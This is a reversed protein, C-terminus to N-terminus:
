GDDEEDHGLRTPAPEAARRTPAPEHDTIASDPPASASDPEAAESGTTAGPRDSAASKELVDRASPRASGASPRASGGPARASGASARASGGPARASGASARGTAGDGSLELLDRIRPRDTRHPPVQHAALSDALLRDRAGPEPRDADAPDPRGKFRHWLRRGALLVLLAAACMTAIFLPKGYANSRVSVTIPQGLPTGSDTALGVSLRVTGTSHARAPVQIQRTGRPPLEVPEVEGINLGPGASVTVRVRVALPLDNRAVLLLPSRDSALTYEGAPNLLRIADTLRGIGRGSTALGADAAQRTAGATLVRLVDTRLPDLYTSARVTADPVEIFLEALEDTRQLDRSAASVTSAAFGTLRSGVPTRTAADAPRLAAGKAAAVVDAYPAPVALDTRLTLVTADLLRDIDAVTPSWRAPPAIIQTRGLRTSLPDAAGGDFATWRSPQLPTLLLAGLARQRRSGPSETGPDLTTARDAFAPILPDDGLAALATTLNPDTLAAGRSGLGVFGGTGATTEVTSAAILAAPTGDTLLDASRGQLAGTTPLALGTVSRTRLISDVTGADAVARASLRGDGVRAAADLDAGAYPLPTVCTQAAARRLRDLWTAADKAGAGPRTASGPDSPNEAVTYGDTMAAVTSLLAPDVAVCTAARLRPEAGRDLITELGTVLRSLRGEPALEAALTDDALRLDPGPGDPVGLAVHPASSIPWLLTLRAPDTTNPPVSGDAASPAPDEGGAPKGVRAPDAPLGAVPLLTRSEALRAPGGDAPTGNVNVLLPYVGPRDLNLGGGALPVTASFTTTGGPEIAAAVRAWPGAVDFQAPDQGLALVPDSPGDARPGRQLRVIVDSVTRDGVNRVTGTVTLQNPSTTTTVPPEVSDLSLELFTPANRSQAAGPAAHAIAETGAGPFSIGAGLVAVAAVLCALRRVTRTM